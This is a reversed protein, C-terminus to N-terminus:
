RTPARGPPAAARPAARAAPPDPSPRPAPAAVELEGEVGRLAFRGLSVTGRGCRAAFRASLLLSRGLPECLAEMRSAENVARGIVTFDLRRAAGVNGYVVEGHHLAVDLGLEPGGRARRGANLAATRALADEAAALARVCADGEAANGPPGGDPFVALLGDGLFKLVEGGREAVPGGAAELHEDLWGVMRLPDERAALATFGRLDALLIAATIARGAGRRVEGALVRGATMPGLYVGLLESATRALAFRYSALGLAPLLADFAAVEPDAFGGPRDTAFAIAVGPLASAAPGGGFRVLRMLYDAGGEARLGALIPLADCGEGAELRWRGADLGAAQLHHVPSRRYMAEGEDGAGHQAAEASTGRGRRWVFALARVTPDIARMGLSVRWLPLGAAALRECVAALLGGPDDGATAERLILDVTSAAATRADGASALREPAARLDRIPEAERRVGAESSAV